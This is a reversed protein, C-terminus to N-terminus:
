DDMGLVQIDDSSSVPNYRGITVWFLFNVGLAILFARLLQDWIGRDSIFIVVAIGVTLMIVWLMFRRAKTETRQYILMLVGIFITLLLTYDEM